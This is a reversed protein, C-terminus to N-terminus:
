VLLLPSPSRMSRAYMRIQARGLGECFASLWSTTTHWAFTIRYTTHRASCSGGSAHSRM